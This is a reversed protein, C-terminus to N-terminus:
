PPRHSEKKVKVTFFLHPCGGGWFCEFHTYFLWPVRTGFERELVVAAGLCVSATAQAYAAPHHGRDAESSLWTCRLQSPRLSASCRVTAQTKRLVVEESDIRGQYVTIAERQQLVFLFSSLSFCIHLCLELCLIYSVWSSMHHCSADLHTHL